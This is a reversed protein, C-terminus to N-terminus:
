KGIKALVKDWGLRHARAALSQNNKDVARPNAGAALLALAVNETAVTLVPTRDKDNQAELRAGARVLTPIVAPDATMHLATDGHADVDRPDAGAAILLDIVKPGGSAVGSDAKPPVCGAALMLPTIRGADAANANARQALMEAVLDPACAGAASRLAKDRAGPIALAGAAILRAVVDSRGTSIAQELASSGEAAPRLFGSQGALPAGADILAFVLAEPGDAAAGALIDAAEASRFDFHEDRLLGLTKDDGRIWSRAGAAVDVQDELATVSTPMGADVGDFDMVSRAQGDITVTLLYRPADDTKAIYGSGLSWFGAARFQTLLEGVAAPAIRFVHRGKVLV